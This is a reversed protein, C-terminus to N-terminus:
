RRLFGRAPLCARIGPELKRRESEYERSNAYILVGHIM